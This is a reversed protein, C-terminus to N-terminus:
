LDISISCTSSMARMCKRFFSHIYQWDHCVWTDILKSIQHFLILALLVYLGQGKPLDALYYSLVLFLTTHLGGTM